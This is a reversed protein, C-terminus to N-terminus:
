AKTFFVHYSLSIACALAKDQVPLVQQTSRLSAREEKHCGLLPLDNDDMEHGCYYGTSVGKVDDSLALNWTSLIQETEGNKGM